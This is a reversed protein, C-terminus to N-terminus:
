SATGRVTAFATVADRNAAIDHVRLMEVGAAAMAVSVGVTGALREDVKRGVIKGIFRKRSHGVLVAHGAARLEAISKLLQVNHEATKGFGIGPDLAIRENAVGARGLAEVRDLLWDRVEAVVDDYRPEDQMTQPTGRIHMCVVGCDSAAAVEPMRPDLTLGSIDNLVAAGADLCAEAVAAKTTDISVVAGTKAVARVVDVTRRLEESEEVPTAGPRTSEGGVDIVDAGEAVLQRAHDLATEVADHRGGDSFSDPTVNLIGFIRPTPGFAFDRGAVTWRNPPAPTQSM